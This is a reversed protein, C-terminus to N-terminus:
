SQLFLFDNKTVITLSQPPNKTACAEAQPLEDTCPGM